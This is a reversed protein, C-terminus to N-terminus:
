KQPAVTSSESKNQVQQLKGVTVTGTMEADREQFYETPNWYWEADALNGCGTMPLGGITNAGCAPMPGDHFLEAPTLSAMPGIQTGLYSGTLHTMDWRMRKILRPKATIDGYEPYLQEVLAKAQGRQTADLMAWVADRTALFKPYKREAAIAIWAFATVPNKEVGEGNLYMLGISMQSLKDAFRAGELFSKMAKQYNGAAYYQMGAFEGELDPHGYTPTNSMADLLDQSTKSQMTATDGAPAAAQQANAATAAFLSIGLSTIRFIWPKM